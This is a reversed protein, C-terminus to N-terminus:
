VKLKALSEQHSAGLDSRRARQREVWRNLRRLERGQEGALRGLGEEVSKCQRLYHNLEGYRQRWRHEMWLVVDLRRLVSLPEVATPCEVSQLSELVGPETVLSHVTTWWETGRKYTFELMANVRADSIPIHHPFKAALLKSTKVHGMGPLAVIEAYLRDLAAWDQPSCEHWNPKEEVEARCEALSARLRGGLETTTNLVYAVFAAPVQVGLSDVALMDWPTFSLPDSQSIHFEFFRGTFGNKAGAKADAFSTLYDALHVELLQRDEVILRGLESARWELVNVSTRRRTLKMSEVSQIWEQNENSARPASATVRDFVTLEDDSPELAAQGTDCDDPM